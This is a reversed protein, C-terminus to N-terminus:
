DCVVPPKSDEEEADINPQCDDDTVEVKNQDIVFKSNSRRELRMAAQKVMELEERRIKVVPM